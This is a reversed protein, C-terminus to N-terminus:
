IFVSLSSLGRKKTFFVIESAFFYELSPMIEEIMQPNVCTLLGELARCNTAVVNAILTTIELQM